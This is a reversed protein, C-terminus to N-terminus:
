FLKELPDIVTGMQLTYFTFSLFLVGVAVRHRVKKVVRPLTQRQFGVRTNWETGVPVELSKEFQARSTYPYPLDKTLYKAAKKDKKESIILHPKGHDARTKPDIGAVKKVIRKAKPNGRVGTGGWTGQQCTFNRQLRSGLSVFRLLVFGALYHVTRKAPHTPKM